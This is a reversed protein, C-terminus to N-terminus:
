SIFNVIYIPCSRKIEYLRKRDFCVTVKSKINNAFLVSGVATSCVLTIFFNIYYLFHFVDVMWSTCAHVFLRYHYFLFFFRHFLILFLNLEWKDIINQWNFSYISHITCTHTNTHLYIILTPLYMILNNKELPERRKEIKTTGLDSNREGLFKLHEWTSFNEWIIAHYFGSDINEMVCRSM